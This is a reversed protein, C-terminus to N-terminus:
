WAQQEGCHPCGITTTPEAKFVFGCGCTYLALDEPGGARRARETPTTVAAARSARAPRDPEAPRRHRRRPLLAPRSM